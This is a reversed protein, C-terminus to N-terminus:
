TRRVIPEATAIFTMSPLIVEDGPGVDLARLALLIADTGSNVGVGYKVGVYAAIENELRKTEEGLVYSGSALVRSIAADMRKKLSRYERGLDIISIPNSHVPNKSRLHATM